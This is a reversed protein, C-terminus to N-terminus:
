RLGRIRAKLDAKQKSFNLGTWKESERLAELERQLQERSSLSIEPRGQGQMPVYKLDDPREVM